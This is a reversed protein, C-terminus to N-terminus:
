TQVFAGDGQGAAAGSRLLTLYVAAGSAVGAEGGGDAEDGVHGFCGEVGGECAPRRITTPRAPILTPNRPPLSPIQLPQLLPLGVLCATEAFKSTDIFLLM